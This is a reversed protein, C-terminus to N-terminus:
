HPHFVQNSSINEIGNLLHNVMEANVESVLVQAHLAKSHNSPEPHPDRLKQFYDEINSLNKM